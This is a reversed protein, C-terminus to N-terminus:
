NSIMKIRELEKNNINHYYYVIEKEIFPIIRRMSLHKEIEKNVRYDVFYFFDEMWFYYMLKDEYVEIFLENQTFDTDFISNTDTLVKESLIELHESALVEEGKIIAAKSWEPQQKIDTKFDNIASLILEVSLQEGDTIQAKETMLENIDKPFYNKNYILLYQVIIFIFVCIILVGGLIFYKMKKGM